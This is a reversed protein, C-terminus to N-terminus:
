SNFEVTDKTKKREEMLDDQWNYYPKKPARKDQEIKTKLHDGIQQAIEISHGTEELKKQDEKSIKQQAAKEKETRVTIDVPKNQRIAENWREELNVATTEQILNILKLREEYSIRSQKWGELGLHYFIFLDYMGEKTRTYTSLITLQDKMGDPGMLYEYESKRYIENTLNILIGPKDEFDNINFPKTENNYTYTEVHSKLIMSMYRPNNKDWAYNLYELYDLETYTFVYGNISTKEM